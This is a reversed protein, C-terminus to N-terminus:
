RCTGFTAAWSDAWASRKANKGSDLHKSSAQKLLAKKFNEILKRWFFLMMWFQNRFADSEGLEHQHYLIDLAYSIHCRKFYFMKRFRCFLRKGFIFGITSAATMRAFEQTQLQKTSPTNCYDVTVQLTTTFAAKLWVKAYHILINRQKQRISPAFISVSCILRGIGLDFMVVSFQVCLKKWFWQNENLWISFDMLAFGRM